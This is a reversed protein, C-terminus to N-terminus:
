KRRRTKRKPADEVPAEAATETADKATEQTPRAMGMDILRLAYSTELEEVVGKRLVKM